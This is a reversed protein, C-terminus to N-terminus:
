QARMLDSLDAPQSQSGETRPAIAITLRSVIMESAGRQTEFTNASAIALRRSRSM